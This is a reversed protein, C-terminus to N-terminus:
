ILGRSVMTDKLEILNPHTENYLVDAVKFWDGSKLADIIREMQGPWYLADGSLDSMRPDGYCSIVSPLTAALINVLEQADINFREKDYQLLESVTKEIRTILEDMNLGM